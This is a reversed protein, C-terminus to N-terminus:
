HDLDIAKSRKVLDAAKKFSQSGEDAMREIMGILADVDDTAQESQISAAGRALYPAIESDSGEEELVRRAIRAFAGPDVKNVLDPVLARAAIPKEADELLAVLATTTEADAPLHRVAEVLSANDPPNQVVNLLLQKDIGKEHVSLMAIAQSTPVSKEAEPRSAELEDRLHEIAVGDGTLALYSLAQRRVEPNESNMLGRLANTVEASYKSLLKSFNSIIKLDNLVNVLDEAEADPDSLRAILDKIRDHSTALERLREAGSSIDEEKGQASQLLGAKYDSIETM